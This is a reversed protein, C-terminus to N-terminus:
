FQGQYHEVQIHHVVSHEERHQGGQSPVGEQCEPTSPAEITLGRGLDGFGWPGAGVWYFGTLILELFVSKFPRLPILHNLYFGWTSRLTLLTDWTLTSLMPFLVTYDLMNLYFM